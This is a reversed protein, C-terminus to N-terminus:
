KLIDWIIPDYKNLNKNVIKGLINEYEESPLGGAYKQPRMAYIMEKTLIEGKKINQGAMLSKRFLPRFLAEGKQLTKIKSPSEVIIVKKNSM